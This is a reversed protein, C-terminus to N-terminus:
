LPIKSYFLHDRDRYALWKESPDVYTMNRYHGRTIVKPWYGDNHPDAMFYALHGTPRGTCPNVSEVGPVTFTYHALHKKSEEYVLREIFAQETELSPGTEITVTYKKLAPKATLKRAIAGVFPLALAAKLFRRRGNIAVQHSM